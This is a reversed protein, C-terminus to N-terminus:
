AGWGAQHAASATPPSASPTAPAPTPAWRTPTSAPMRACSPWCDAARRHRVRGHPGRQAGLVDGAPQAARPRRPRGAAGEGDGGAREHGIPDARPDQARHQPVPRAHLQGRTAARRARRRGPGSSRTCSGSCSSRTPPASWSTTTPTSGPTSTSAASGARGAAAARRHVRHQHGARPARHRRVVMAETGSRWATRSALHGLGPRRDHLLRSSSSTSWCSASTRGLRDYVQPLAVRGAPGARRARRGPGPYNTGDTFWLKLETSGTADMVDVCDLLHDTAKRRVRPDPHTVSGLMYDDDQFVNANIAGIRVGLDAAHAALKGYDDVRDWPIHLSVRPAVGTYRHVQAADAIKEFPDRPVGPQAFVKFRTGSNGFAWSPLEIQQSRLRACSM